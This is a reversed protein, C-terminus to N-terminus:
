KCKILLFSLRESRSNSADADLHFDMMEEPVLQKRFQIKSPFNFM